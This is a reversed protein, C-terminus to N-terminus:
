SKRVQDVKAFRGKMRVRSDARAKRSEYRILKDYRRMKKKEKYRSIVSDRDPCLEIRGKPTLPAGNGIYKDNVDALTVSAHITDVGDAFPAIVSSSSGMQQDNYFMVNPAEHSDIHALMLERDENSPMDVFPAVGDFDCLFSDEQVNEQPPVSLFESIPGLEQCDDTLQSESKILERLQRIIEEKQKGCTFNRDKPLPPIGIFQSSADFSPAPEVLLDDMRVVVAKAAQWLESWLGEDDGEEEEEELLLKRHDGGAGLLAALEAAAPCGSFPEIPRRQQHEGADFDCNSCLVLGAGSSFISAPSSRCSDCLLSRPHKSSVVNAAHVHRDCDLCLAAADARCYLLAKRESCFECLDSSKKEKEVGM